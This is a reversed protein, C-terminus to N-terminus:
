VHYKTELFGLRGRGSTLDDVYDPLKDVFHNVQHVLTPVFSYGILAVAIVVGLYTIGVALGRRHVRHRQLWDVAPNLAMALCLSIFIWTLVHRSIWLVELVAAVGLVIGLVTFVTRAPFHVWRDLMAGLM